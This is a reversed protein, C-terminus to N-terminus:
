FVHGQETLFLSMLREFIYFATSFLRNKMALISLIIVPLPISKQQSPFSGGLVTASQRPFDQLRM